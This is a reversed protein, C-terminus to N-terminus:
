EDLTDVRVVGYRDFLADFAADNGALAGTHTFAARAAAETRGTKLAVVAVNREAARALAERFGHPDRATEMFLGVVKVEPRDVAYALYDAMTTTLEQGPSIALAFRLRPDNHALAGFVSGSHAILAISGPRPTRPSLFGCVWVRDLDNYYGMCNG